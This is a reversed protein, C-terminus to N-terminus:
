LNTTVADGAQPETQVLDLSGVAKDPSVYLININAVFRDGRVVYFKMNQQVGQASGISIAAMRNKLDVETVRGNLGIIKTQPAPVPGATPMPQVTTTRPIVTTQPRTAMRGYQQLYQNLQTQLGQNEETLRRVKEQLETNIAMRETLAQNTEDLDKKRATQDTRLNQVEKQAAEFLATQQQAGAYVTEVTTTMNTVKLLLQAKEREANSLDGELKKVRDGLEVIQANFQTKENEAKKNADELEQQAATREQRAKTLQASADQALKRQNATHAVYTLVIGCLFISFVSSLVILVKTLTSM